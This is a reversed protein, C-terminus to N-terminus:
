KQLRNRCGFLLGICRKSPTVDINEMQTTERTWESTAEELKLSSAFNSQKLSETLAVVPPANARVEVSVMTAFRELSLM